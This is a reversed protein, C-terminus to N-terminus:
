LNDLWLCSKFKQRQPFIKLSYNALKSLIISSFSVSKGGGRHDWIDFEIRKKKGAVTVISNPDDARVPDRYFIAPNQFECINKHM